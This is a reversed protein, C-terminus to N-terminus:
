GNLFWKKSRGLETYVSKPQEGKVYRGIAEKRIKEESM